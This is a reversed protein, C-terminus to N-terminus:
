LMPVAVTLVASAIAGDPTAVASLRLVGVTVGPAAATRGDAITVASLTPTAVAPTPATVTIGDAIADSSLTARGTIPAPPIIAPLITVSSVNPVAASVVPPTFM